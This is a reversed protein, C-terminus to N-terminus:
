MLWSGSPLTNEGGDCNQSRWSRGHRFCFVLWLEVTAWELGCNAQTPCNHM